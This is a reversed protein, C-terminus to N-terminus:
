VDSHSLPLLPSPAGVARHGDSDRSSLSAQSKGLSLRGLKGMEVQASLQGPSRGLALEAIRTRQLSAWGVESDTNGVSLRLLAPVTAFEGNLEWCM